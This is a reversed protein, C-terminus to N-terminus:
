KKIPIWVECFVGEESNGWPYVEFDVDDLMTYNAGPLFESFIKDWTESICDGNNGICKFVAWETPNVKWIEYGEPVEVGEKPLVGIGYKFYSSEKTIPACMGYMEDSAAMERLEAVSGDKHCDEWFDPIEHNEKDATIENRFQKAKVLVKFCERKVLRYEMAMGGEVQIKIILPNFLKLPAGTKRAVSPSVGHFRVFARNFSEPSDYGYKLAIDIIKNTTKMIEQGALSLRRKRLYENPSFGTLMSFTRHLYYHSIHMMDAVDEYTISGLLHEEMYDIEQQLEQIWGM